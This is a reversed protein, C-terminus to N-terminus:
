RRVPYSISPKFAYKTSDAINVLVLRLNFSEQAFNIDYPANMVPLDFLSKEQPACKCIKGGDGENENKRHVLIYYHVFLM